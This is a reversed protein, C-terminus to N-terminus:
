FSPYSKNIPKILLSISDTMFFHRHDSQLQKSDQEERKRLTIHNAHTKGCTHCCIVPTGRPHGLHTSQFRPLFCCTVFSDVYSKVFLVMDVEIQVAVNFQTKNFSNQWLLIPKWLFLSLWCCFFYGIECLPVCIHFNWFICCLRGICRFSHVSFKQDLLRFM